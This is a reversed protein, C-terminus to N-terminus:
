SNIVRVGQSLFTSADFPALRVAGGSQPSELIQNNGLYMAVHQTGGPGRFVMDGRKLQSIPVKNGTTYQYGSYKPLAIGVAAYMYAMLGSCDFGVRNYDGFSDAVGGDRVGKTAGWANGGGWAYQVGIVSMGRQIVTEIMQAGSMSSVGPVAQSAPATPQQGAPAAQGTLAGFPNSFLSSAQGVIGQAFTRAAALPDASDATGAQAAPAAAQGAPAAPAAPAAIQQTQQEDVVYQAYIKQQAARDEARKAQDLARQALERQASLTTQEQQQTTLAAVTQTISDEATTKREAAAATAADAQVKAARAATRSAEARTKAAKLDGLASKQKDAVIRLTTARDVAVAPDDGGLTDVLGGASTGQAYAARVVQDFSDQATKIKADSEKVAAESVTIAGSAATAADRASQLDVVARNVSQRKTAVDGRLDAIRQDAQAIRDVLAAVVNAPNADPGNPEAFVSGASAVSGAVLSGTAVAALLSRAALKTAPHATRRM